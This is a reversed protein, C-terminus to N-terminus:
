FSQHDTFVEFNTGLLSKFEAKIGPLM